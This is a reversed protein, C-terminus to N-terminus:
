AFFSSAFLFCLLACFVAEYIVDNFFLEWLLCNACFGCNEGPQKAVTNGQVVDSSMSSNLVYMNKSSVSCTSLPQRFDKTKIEIGM